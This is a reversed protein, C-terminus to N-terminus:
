TSAVTFLWIRGSVSITTGASRRTVKLRTKPTSRLGLNEGFVIQRLFEVDSYRLLRNLCIMSTGKGTGSNLKVIGDRVM